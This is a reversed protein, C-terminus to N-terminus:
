INNILEELEKIEEDSAQKSVCVEPHKMWYPVLEEKKFKNYKNKYNNNNINHDCNEAVKLDCNKAVQSAVKQSRNYKNLFIKRKNHEYKITIYNLKSLKSLSYTITRECTNLYNM